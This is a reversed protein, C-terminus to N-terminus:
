VQEPGEDELPEDPSTERGQKIIAAAREADRPHVWLEARLGPLDGLGADLYDGVVKSEIGEDQLAQQWIHAQVPTSATALRVIHQEQENAM